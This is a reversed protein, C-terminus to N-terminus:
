DYVEQCYHIVGDCVIKVGNIMGGGDDIIGGIGGIIDGDDVLTDQQLQACL